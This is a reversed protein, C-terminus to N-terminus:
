TENKLDLETTTYLKTNWFGGCRWFQLGTRNKLLDSFDFYKMENSLLNFYRFKIERM